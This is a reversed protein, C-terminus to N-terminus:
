YTKYLLQTPCPLHCINCVRHITEKYCQTSVRINYILSTGEEGHSNHKATLVLISEGLLVPLPGELLQWFAIQIVQIQTMVQHGLVQGGPGLWM